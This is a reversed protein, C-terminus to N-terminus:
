PEEERDNRYEKLRQLSEEKAKSILDKNISVYVCESCMGLDDLCINELRCEGDNQYICFINECSILILGM